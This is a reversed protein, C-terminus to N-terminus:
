IGYSKVNRCDAPRMCAPSSTFLGQIVLVSAMLPGM